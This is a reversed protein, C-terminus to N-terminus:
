FASKRHLGVAFGLSFWTSLLMAPFVTAMCLCRGLVVSWIFIVGECCCEM